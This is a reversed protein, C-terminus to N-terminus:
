IKVIIKPWFQVGELGEFDNDQTIISATLIMEWYSGNARLKDFPLATCHRVFGYENRVNRSCAEVPEAHVPKSFTAKEIVM